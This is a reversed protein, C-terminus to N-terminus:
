NYLKYSVWYILWTTVFLSITINVYKPNMAKFFKKKLIIEFISTLLILILGGFLIPGMLHFRFSQAFQFRMLAYFSRTLGCTLCNLGTVQKFYCKTLNVKNPDIFFSCLIMMLIIGVLVIRNLLDKQNLINNM